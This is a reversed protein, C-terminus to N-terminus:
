AARNDMEDITGRGRRFIAKGLRLQDAYSRARHWHAPAFQLQGQRRVGEATDLQWQLSTRAPHPSPVSDARVTSRPSQYFFQLLDDGILLRAAAPWGLRPM